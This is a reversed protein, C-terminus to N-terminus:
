RRSPFPLLFLGVVVALLYLFLQFGALSDELAGVGPTVDYYVGIVAGVTIGYAVALLLCAFSFRVM